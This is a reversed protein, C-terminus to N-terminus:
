VEAGSQELEQQQEAERVEGKECPPSAATLPERDAHEVLDIDITYRQVVMIGCFTMALIAPLQVSIIFLNSIWGGVTTTCLSEEFDGLSQKLHGCNFSASLDSGLVLEQNNQYTAWSLMEPQISEM